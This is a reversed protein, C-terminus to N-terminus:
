IMARRIMIGFVKIGMVFLYPSLPDGQRLGRLSSFFGSSVRAWIWGVWKSGLGHM